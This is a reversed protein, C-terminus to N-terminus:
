GLYDMIFDPSFYFIIGLIFAGYAFFSYKRNLRINNRIKATYAFLISILIIYCCVILEWSTLYYLISELGTRSTEDNPLSPIENNNYESLIFYPLFTFVVGIFTFGYSFFKFTRVLKPNKRGSSVLSFLMFAIVLFICVLVGWKQLYSILYVMFDEVQDNSPFFQIDGDGFRPIEESATIM